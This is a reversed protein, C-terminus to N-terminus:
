FFSKTATVFVEPRNIAIAPALTSVVRYVMNDVVQNNAQHIMDNTWQTGEYFRRFQDIERWKRKIASEKQHKIKSLWERYKDSGGNGDSFGKTSFNSSSFKKKNRKNKKDFKNKSAM